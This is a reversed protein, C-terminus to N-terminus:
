TEPASAGGTLLTGTGWGAAPVSGKAGGAWKATLGSPDVRDLPDNGVYRFLNM